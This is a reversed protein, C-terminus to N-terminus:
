PLAELELAPLEGSIEDPDIERDQAVSELVALSTRLAEIGDGITALHRREGDQLERHFQGIEALWPDLGASTWRVAGAGDRLTVKHPWDATILGDPGMYTHREFPEVGSPLGWSVHVQGVGGSPYRLTIHASDLAKHLIGALEIKDQSFTYGHARVCSPSEGFLAVWQDFVHCCMDIIPGGNAAADHMLLKPRIGAAITAQALVPDGIKHRFALIQHSAPDFRRMFGFRLKRGSQVAADKMALADSLTLAAPKECLVDKGALLAEITYRAHLFTPTCVSVVRVDSRALFSATDDVAEAGVGAAVAEARARDPDFVGVVRAGVANWHEAHRAGMDGAGVVLVGLRSM